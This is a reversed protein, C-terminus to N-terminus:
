ADVPEPDRQATGDAVRSANLRANHALRGYALKATEPDGTKRAERVGARILVAQEPWVYFVGHGPVEVPITGERPKEQPIM